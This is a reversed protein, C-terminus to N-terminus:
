GLVVMVSHGFGELGKMDELSRREIREDEYSLRELAASKTDKPWGHDILVKAIAAPNHEPDTLFGVKRGPTYYLDEEKPVRGHFSMLHADHWVEGLRAFAFTMSSLGPTVDIPHDPFQKKLYPLLSYYGTDGSVLVVVDENALQERIWETMLSLKGTIAYTVHAPTAFDLLARESGVMVRHEQMLTLGRPVVYDPNGPGIGIIYLTHKM